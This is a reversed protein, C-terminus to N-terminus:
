ASVLDGAEEPAGEVELHVRARLADFIRQAREVTIGHYENREDRSVMSESVQLREALQRQNLGAWIRLGILLRGISNLDTVPAFEGRRMREYVEVEERLQENFSQLPQLARQLQEDRLGAEMLQKRQMEFATLDGRLRQVAENYEADTRIM